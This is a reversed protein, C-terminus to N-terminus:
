KGKFVPKRKDFFAQIGEARDETAMLDYFLERERKMGDFFPEEQSMLVAQKVKQTALPPMSAVTEAVELARSLVDRDAVVESALEMELAEAAGIRSGTLIMQMARYKGVARPLRQTAGGGPMFGLTIEPLGIKVGEGMIIIDSCLMVECGGGLAYGNVAAILPKPFAGLDHWFKEHNWSKVEDADAAAFAKIDAGAIFAKEDGTMVVVRVDNDAAAADLLRILEDRMEQNLTNLKEPRNFRLLLIGSSPNESLIVSV